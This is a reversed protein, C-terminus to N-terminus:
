ARCDGMGAVVIERDVQERLAMRGRLREILEERVVGVRVVALDRDDVAFGGDGARARFQPRPRTMADALAVDREAVHERSLRHEIRERRAVFRLRPRAEVLPQHLGERRRAVRATKGARAPRRGAREAASTTQPLRGCL